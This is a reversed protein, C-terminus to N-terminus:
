PSTIPDFIIQFYGKLLLVLNPEHNDQIIDDYHWKMKTCLEIVITEQNKFVNSSTNSSFFAQYLLNVAIILILVINFYIQM